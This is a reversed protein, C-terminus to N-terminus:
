RKIGSRIAEFLKEPARSGIMLKKVKKGGTLFASIILYM